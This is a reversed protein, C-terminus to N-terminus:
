RFEGKFTIIMDENCERKDWYATNGWLVVATYYKGARSHRLPSLVKNYWKNSDDIILSLNLRFIADAFLKDALTIGIHYMWDHINCAISVDLGYFTDPVDLGSKAGCGNCTDNREEETAEWYSIPAYLKM